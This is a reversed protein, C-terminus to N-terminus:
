ELIGFDSNHLIVAAPNAPFPDSQILTEPTSPDGPDGSLLTQKDARSVIVLTPRNAVTADEVSDVNTGCGAGPQDISAKILIDLYGSRNDIADQVLAIWAATNVTITGGAPEPITFPVARDLTFDAGATTWNNTGDYKNWSADATWTTRTLRCILGTGTDLGDNNANMTLSASTVTHGLLATLDFRMLVRGRDSIAAEGILLTPDAGHTATPNAENIYTDISPYATTTINAMPACGLIAAILLTFALPIRKKM